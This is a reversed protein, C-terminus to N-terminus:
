LKMLKQTSILDNQNYIMLLYSGTSLHSIDITQSNKITFESLLEGYVSYIKISLSDKISSNLIINLNGRSPNPYLHISDFYDSVINACSDLTVYIMDSSSCGNSDSVMVSYLGSNIVLHLSDWANDGSGWNYYVGDNGAHLQIVSDCTSIDAGLDVIPPIFLEFTLKATDIEYGNSVIFTVSDLNNDAYFLLSDLSSQIMSNNELNWNYTLPYGCKNSSIIITDNLCFGILELSSNIPPFLKTIFLDNSTVINFSSTDLNITGGFMGGAYLNCKNDSSITYITNGLVLDYSMSTPNGSSIATKKWLFNGDLDYDLIFGTDFGNVSFISDQDNNFWATDQTYGSVTVYENERITIGTLEVREKSHIQRIWIRNGTKSYKAIFSDTNDIIETTISGSGSSILSTDPQSSTDFLNMTGSLHGIVYINKDNDLVMNYGENRYVGTGTTCWIFNGASDIQMLYYDWHSPSVGSILHSDYMFNLRYQGTTVLTNNDILQIDWGEGGYQADLYNAWVCIGSTDYKALFSYTYSDMEGILNGDFDVISSITGTLYSNGLSDVAIGYGRCRDGGSFENKWLVNGGSDLKTIFGSRAKANDNTQGNDYGWLTDGDFIAFNVFDGTLYINDFQDLAISRGWDPNTGGIRNKWILNGFPDFKAVFIDTHGLGASFQASGGLGFMVDEKVRGCIIINNHSDNLMDWAYLNGGGSITNVWDFFQSFSWNQASITLFIFLYRLM